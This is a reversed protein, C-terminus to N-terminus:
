SIIKEIKDKVIEFHYQKGPHLYYKMNTQANLTILIKGPISEKDIGVYFIFEPYPEEQIIKVALEIQKRHKSYELEIDDTLSNDCDLREYNYIKEKTSAMLLENMRYNKDLEM